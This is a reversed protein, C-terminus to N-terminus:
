LYQITLYDQKSLRWLHIQYIESYNFMLHMMFLLFSVEIDEKNDLLPVEMLHRLLFRESKVDLKQGVLAEIRNWHREVMAKNAMMEMLPCTANFDELKKQLDKYAQWDKLAKPLRKCREAHLCRFDIFM